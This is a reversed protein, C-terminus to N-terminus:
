SRAARQKGLQIQSITSPDVGFRRALERGTVKGRLSRIEEAQEPTIKGVFRGPDALDTPVYNPDHWNVNKHIKCIADRSVRYRRALEVGSVEGRLARIEHVDKWTLITHRCRRINETQTIAELHDPNVCAKQECLHDLVLGDPVQGYKATYYVVHAYKSQDVRHVAGYGLRHKARQWIWCPTEYGRDEIVIEPTTSETHMVVELIPVPAM